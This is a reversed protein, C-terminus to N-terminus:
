GNNVDDITEEGPTPNNLTEEGPTPNNLTEEGPTPNNDGCIKPIDADTFGNEYGKAVL